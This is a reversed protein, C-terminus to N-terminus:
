MESFPRIWTGGRQRWRGIPQFRTHAQSMAPAIFFAPNMTSDKLGSPLAM